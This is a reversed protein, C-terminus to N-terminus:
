FDDEDDRRKKQKAKKNTREREEFRDIEVPAADLEEKSQPIYVQSRKGQWLCQNSLLVTVNQQDCQIVTGAQGTAVIVVTGEEISM